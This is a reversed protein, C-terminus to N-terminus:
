NILLTFEQIHTVAYCVGMFILFLLLCGCGRVLVGATEYPEPERMEIM